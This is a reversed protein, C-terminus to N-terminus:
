NNYNIMFYKFYRMSGVYFRFNLKIYISLCLLYNNYLRTKLNVASSKVVIYTWNLISVFYKILTFLISFFSKMIVNERHIGPIPYIETIKRPFEEGNFKWSNACWLKIDLGVVWICWKDIYIYLYEYITNFHKHNKVTLLTIQM